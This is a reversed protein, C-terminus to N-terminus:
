KQLKEIEAKLNKNEDLLKANQEMVTDFVGEVQNKLNQQAKLKWSDREKTREALLKEQRKIEKNYQETLRKIQDNRLELEKKLQSNEVSILRSMRNNYTETQNCGAGSIICIGVAMVVIKKTIGNM